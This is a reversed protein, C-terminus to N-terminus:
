VVSKRDLAEESGSNFNNGLAQILFSLAFLWFNKSVLMIFCSIAVLVRSIIMSKKRGLLDAVAGSPVEFLMSTIHYIGELIGIQGLNMGCYALFLVWICGQMNMNQIFVSVYDLGINRSLKKKYNIIWKYVENWITSKKQMLFAARYWLILSGQTWQM